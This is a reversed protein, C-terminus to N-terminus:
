KVTYLDGFSKHSKMDYKHVIICRHFHKAIENLDEATIEYDNPDKNLKEILNEFGEQELQFYEINQYDSIKM